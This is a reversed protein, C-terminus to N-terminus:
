FFVMPIDVYDHVCPKSVDYVNINLEGFSIKKGLYKNKNKSWDMAFNQADRLSTTFMSNVKKNNLLVEAVYMSTTDGIPIRSQVSMTKVFKTSTTNLLDISQPLALVLRNLSAGASLNKAPLLLLCKKGKTIFM